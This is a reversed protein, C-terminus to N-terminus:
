GVEFCSIDMLENNSKEIMWEKAVITFIVPIYVTSFSSFTVATWDIILVAFIMILCFSTLKYDIKKLYKYNKFFSFCPFYYMVFGFLGFTCLVETVNCHSYDYGTSTNAMFYNFGGGFLPNKLWFGFGEAIMTMRSETSHSYHANNLNFGMQGLMDVIRTGLLNYFYDIGFVVYLSLAGFLLIVLKGVTKNKSYSYIIFINAIIYVITKKSGTLMMIGMVFIAFFLMYLKREKAYFLTMFMSLIGLSMGVTNVNGAMSNGVSRLGRNLFDGENIYMTLICLLSVMGFYIALIKVYDTQKIISKFVLYYLICQYYSIIFRDINFEGTQLYFVGYSIYLSFIFTIWLINKTIVVKNKFNNLIVLIGALINLALYIFITDLKYFCVNSYVLFVLSIGNIGNKLYRKM